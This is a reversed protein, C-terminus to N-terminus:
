RDGRSAIIGRIVIASETITESRSIASRVNTGPRPNLTMLMVWTKTM